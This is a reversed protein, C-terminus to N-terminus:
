QGQDLQTILVDNDNVPFSTPQTRCVLTGERQSSAKNEWCVGVSWASLLNSLTTFWSYTVWLSSRWGGIEPLLHAKAMSRLLGLSHLIPGTSRRLGSFHLLEQRRRKLGGHQMHTREEVCKDKSLEPGYIAFLTGYSCIDLTLIFEAERGDQGRQLEPAPHCGADKLQHSVVFHHTWSNTEWRPYFIYGVGPGWM